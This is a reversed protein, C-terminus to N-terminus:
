MRRMETQLEDMKRNLRRMRRDIQDMRENFRRDIQGMRENIQRVEILIQANALDAPMIPLNEVENLLGRLHGSIAAVYAPRPGRGRRVRVSPASSPESADAADAAHVPDAADASDADTVVADAGM